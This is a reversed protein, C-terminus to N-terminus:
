EKKFFKIWGGRKPIEITLVGKNFSRNSIKDAADKPLSIVKYTRKLGHTKVILRNDKIEVRISDEKAGPLDVVIMYRDKMDIIEAEETEREPVERAEIPRGPPGIEKIQPKGDPGITISFGRVYPKGPEVDIRLDSFIKEFQKMIERFMREIPDEDWWEDKRM